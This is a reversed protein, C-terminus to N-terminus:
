QNKCTSSQLELESIKVIKYIENIKYLRLIVLKFKLYSKYQNAQKSVLM